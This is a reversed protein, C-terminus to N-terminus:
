GVGAEPYPFRTATELDPYAHKRLAVDCLAYGWNVLQHRRLLDIKGLRTRIKALEGTQEKPCELAHEIEYHEVDSRIALYPGDRFDHEYAFRLQAKRLSRVQNDVVLGVRFQHRLWDRKPRPITKLERGADSAIVRRCRKYVTELGLNDYVGGDSLVIEQRFEPTGLENHPDDTWIARRLDLVYPSLGPPFASSCAVAVAVQMEDLGNAGQNKWEIRGVRWDAMYHKTFRWLAGSGVNTANFVFEPAGPEDGLSQLTREGYLRRRYIGALAEGVSSRPNPVGFLVARVDASRSAFDLLPEVVRERFRAAGGASTADVQKWEVALKAATISGGSVSSVRDLRGITGSDVLRWLVGAHFLMARYGGGSLCLGTGTTPEREDEEHPLRRVPELVRGPRGRDVLVQLEAV